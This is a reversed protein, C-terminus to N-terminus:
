RVYEVGARNVQWEWRIWYLEDFSDDDLMQDCERDAAANIEGQIFCEPTDWPMYLRHTEPLLGHGQEIMRREARNHM